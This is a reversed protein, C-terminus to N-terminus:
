HKGAYAGSHRARDHNAHDSFCNPYMSQSDVNSSAHQLDNKFSGMTSSTQNVMNKAEQQVKGQGAGFIGGGVAQATEAGRGGVEFAGHKAVTAKTELSSDVETGVERAQADAGLGNATGGLNDLIGGQKGGTATGGLNDLIGGQKGHERALDSSIDEHIGDTLDTNKTASFRNSRNTSNKQFKCQLM